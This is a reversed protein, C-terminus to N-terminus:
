KKGKKGGGAGGGGFHIHVTQSPNENVPYEVKAWSDGSTYSHDFRNGDPDTFNDLSYPEKMGNATSIILWGGKESTGPGEYAAFFTRVGSKATGSGAWVWNRDLAFFPGDSTAIIGRPMTKRLLVVTWGQAPVDVSLSNRVEGLCDGDPFQVAFRRMKVKDWGLDQFNATLKRKHDSGNLFLMVDQSPLSEGEGIRFNIIQTEASPQTGALNLLHFHRNPRSPQTLLRQLTLPLNGDKDAFRRKLEGALGDLDNQEPNFEPADIVTLTPTNDLHFRIEVPAGAEYAPLDLTHGSLRVGLGTKPALVVDCKRGATKGSVYQIIGNEKAQSRRIKPKYSLAFTGSLQMSGGVGGGERAITVTKGDIQLNLLSPDFDLPAGHLKLSLRRLVAQDGWHLQYEGEVEKLAFSPEAEAQAAGVMSSTLSLCLISLICRLIM